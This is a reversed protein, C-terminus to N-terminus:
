NIPFVYQFPLFKVNWGLEVAVWEEKQLYEVCAASFVWIQKDVFCASPCHHKNVMSPMSQYKNTLPNYKECLNTLIKGETAYGGLM